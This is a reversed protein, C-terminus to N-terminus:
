EALSAELTITTGTLEDIRGIDLLRLPQALRLNMMPVLSQGGALIKLDDDADALVEIAHELGEARLYTVM